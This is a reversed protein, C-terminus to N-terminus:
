NIILKESGKGTSTQVEVVYVGKSLSSVDINTHTSQLVEQGLSNYITAKQLTDSNLLNIILNNKTPNPYLSFTTLTTEQTSLINSLDYVRVHGSDAGNGDNFPAGVALILGNSSLSVIGLRDGEEEGDIDDGVQIWNDQNYKYIRVHGSNIGNGDNGLAGIALITGDSSLSVSSGSFDDTAEGNIDEGLQIWNGDQNEYVRVRGATENNFTSNRAGVALISGDSSLSLSSGFLEQATEGNIENGIQTWSGDQNEFIRVQGSNDGNVSNSIAGFAVINAENSLSVSSGLFDGSTGQIDEGLQIWNGGQNQYIRAQGSFAANSDSGPVGIVLVNGDGSLSISAGLNDGVNEGFIVGIQVWDNGQNEYITVRGFTEEGGRAGIAIINGNNSLSISQGSEDLGGMGDIDQGIQVWTNNDNEYVRVHGSGEGFGDNFIAGVAAANGNMSLSISIGSFDGAAEGDIDDGIQVQGYSLVPLLLFLLLKKM